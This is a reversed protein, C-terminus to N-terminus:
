EEDFRESNVTVRPRNTDFAEEEDFKARADRAEDVWQPGLGFDRADDGYM